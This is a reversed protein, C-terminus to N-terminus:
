LFGLSRLIFVFAFMTISAFATGLVIAQSTFQHDAGMQFAMPFCSVAPPGAFMALTVAMQVKDFGLRIAIFVAALPIIILKIIVSILALRLKTRETRFHVSAGLTFLALPMAMDSMYGFPAKVLQPPNFNLLSCIIGLVAAILLPNGFLKKLLMAFGAGQQNNESLILVALINLLPVMFILLAATKTLGPQGVLNYIFPLGLLVTNAHFSTQIFASSVYIEKVFYPTFLRLIVALIFTGGVCLLALPLDFDAKFDSQMINLFLLCPLAVYFCIKTGTNVFDDDIFKVTKLVFGLVVILFLPVVANLSFLLDTM